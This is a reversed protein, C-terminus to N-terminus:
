WNQLSPSALSRIAASLFFSPIEGARCWWRFWSRGKCVRSRHVPRRRSRSCSFLRRLLEERWAAGTLGTLANSGAKFVLKSKRFSAM